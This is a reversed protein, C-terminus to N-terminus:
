SISKKAKFSPFICVVFRDEKKTKKAWNRKQYLGEEFLPYL